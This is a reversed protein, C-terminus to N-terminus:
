QHIIQAGAPVAFDSANVSTSFSTLKLSSGASSVEALIGGKTVCYRSNQGNAVVTMCTSDQGAITENSFSINVGALHSAVQAQAAQMSSVVADPTFLGNLAGLAGASSSTVCTAQGGSESCNYTTAGDYIISSGSSSFYSKPPAQEITVTLATGGQNTTYVAKFTAHKGSGVASSLASIKSSVDGAQNGPNSQATSSNCGTVALAAVALLGAVQRYSITSNM